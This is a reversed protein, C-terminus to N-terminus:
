VSEHGIVVVLGFWAELQGEARHVGGSETSVDVGSGLHPFAGIDSDEWAVWEWCSEVSHTGSGALGSLGLAHEGFLVDEPCEESEDGERHDGPNGGDDERISPDIVFDQDGYEDDAGVGEAPDEDEAGRWLM